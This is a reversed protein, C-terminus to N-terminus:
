RAVPAPRQMFRNALRRVVRVGRVVFDDESEPIPPRRDSLNPRFMVLLLIPLYWLIYVGGRDGYWFQIGLLVAALLSLLHALNKPSPWFATAAVFFVYVTFVPIRYAWGVGTWFSEAKTVRWPLWDPQGLTQRTVTSLQGNWLLLAVTLALSIGATVAVAGLFRRTGRQWYFSIWVPLTVAPFFLSGTAAGVLAGAVVPRRYAVIAWLLLATPWVHHIQTVHFAIYPLLLYLTAAAMGASADQFHYIGILILAVVVALHCAGVFGRQVWFQTNRGDEHFIALLDGGATHTVLDAVGRQGADLVASTKGVQSDSEAPKRLAVGGLCVFLMGIMWALGARNLNPNLAPRRVLALDVMCRAFFYWSGVLLWLYGIWIRPDTQGERIPVPNNQAEQLLLLGPVLMFLTILDLNRLSLLRHFQFFIAIALLASLYFWTTGNPLNFDLFISAPVTIAGGRAARRHVSHPSGNGRTPASHAGRGTV